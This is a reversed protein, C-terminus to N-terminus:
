KESRRAQGLLSTGEPHSATTVSDSTRPDGAGPVQASRDANPKTGEDSDAVEEQADDYDELATKLDEKKANGDYQISRQDLAEKLQEVTMDDYKGM